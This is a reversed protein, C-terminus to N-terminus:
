SQDRDGCRVLGRAREARPWIDGILVWAEYATLCAPDSEFIAYNIASRSMPLSRV